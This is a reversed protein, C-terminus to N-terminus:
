SEDRAEDDSCDLPGCSADAGYTHEDDVTVALYIGEETSWGEYEIFEGDRTVETEPMSFILATLARAQKADLEQSPTYNHGVIARFQQEYSTM